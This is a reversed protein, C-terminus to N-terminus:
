FDSLNRKMLEMDTLQKLDHHLESLRRLLPTENINKPMDNGLDDYAKKADDYTNSNNNIQVETVPEDPLYIALFGAKKFNKLRKINTFEGASQFFGVGIVDNTYGSALLRERSFASKVSMWLNNPQCMLVFDGYSKIQPQMGSSKYFNNEDTVLDKLENNLLLESIGGLVSVGGQREKHTADRIWRGNHLDHSISKIKMCGYPEPKPGDLLVIKECCAVDVAASTNMNKIFAIYEPFETFFGQNLQLRCSNDDVCSLKLALEPLFIDADLHRNASASLKDFLHDFIMRYEDSTFDAPRTVLGLNFCRNLDM